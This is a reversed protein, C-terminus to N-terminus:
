ALSSPQPAPAGYAVAGEMVHHPSSHKGSGLRPAGSRRRILCDLHRSSGIGHPSVGRLGAGVYLLATGVWMVSPCVTPTLWSWRRIATGRARRKSLWRCSFGRGRALVSTASGPALSRDPRAITVEMAGPCTLHCQPDYTPPSLPSRHHPPSRCPLLQRNPCIRRWGCKMTGRSFDRPTQM